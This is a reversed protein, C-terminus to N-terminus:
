KVDVSFSESDTKQSSVAVAFFDCVCFERDFCYVPVSQRADHTQRKSPRIHTHPFLEIVLPSFIECIICLKAILQVGGNGRENVYM